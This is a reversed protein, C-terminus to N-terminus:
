EFITGTVNTYKINSIYPKDPMLLMYDGTDIDNSFETAGNKDFRLKFNYKRMAWDQGGLTVTGDLEVNKIRVDNKLNARAVLKATGLYLDYLDFFSKNKTDFDYVNIDIVFYKEINDTTLIVPNNKLSIYKAIGISSILLVIIVVFSIVIKINLHKYANTINKFNMTKNNNQDVFVKDESIKSLIIPQSIIPEQINNDESAKPQKIITENNNERHNFIFYNIGILLLSIFVLLTGYGIQGSIIVKIYLMYDLMIFSAILSLISVIKSFTKISIYLLAILFVMQQLIFPIYQFLLM